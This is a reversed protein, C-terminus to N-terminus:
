ILILCLNRMELALKIAKAKNFTNGPRNYEPFELCNSIIIYIKYLHLSVKMDKEYIKIIEIIQGQLSPCTDIFSNINCFYLPTKLLLKPLLGPKHL